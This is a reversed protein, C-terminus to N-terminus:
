LMSVHAMEARNMGSVMIVNLDNGAIFSIDLTSQDPGGDVKDWAKTCAFSKRILAVTVGGVNVAATTVGSNQPAIEIVADEGTKTHVTADIGFPNATVRKEHILSCLDRGTPGEVIWRSKLDMSRHQFDFFHRPDTEDYVKRRWSWSTGYKSGEVQFIINGIEDVGTIQKFTADHCNITITTDTQRTYGGLM